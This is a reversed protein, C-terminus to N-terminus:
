FKKYSGINNKLLYKLEIYDDEYEGFLEIAEKLSKMDITPINERVLPTVEVLFQSLSKYQKENETKIVEMEEQEDINKLDKEIQKEKFNNENLWNVIYSKKGKEFLKLYFPSNTGTSKNLFDIYVKEVIEEQEKSSMKEFFDYDLLNQKEEVVVAEEIVEKEKEKQKIDKVKKKVIYEDAWNNILAEKFYKLISAKANLATYEATYKVYDFEYKKLAERIINPLTKLSDGKSGFINIIESVNCSVDDDLCINNLREEVSHIINFDEKDQYFLQQKNKNHETDFFIEFENKDTKGNKLYNFDSILNLNKLELLSDSIKKVTKYLMNGKLSLPIKKAIYTLPKKLYLSNKRWKTIQTYLSRVVPDKINLLIDADFVLYGKATINGYIDDAIRIRYIEKIRRDVFFDKEKDDAEKFTLIRSTILPTNIFDDVRKNLSGLYFLNFFSYNTKSLKIISNKIKSYVGRKSNKPINLSDAIESLSCYFIAKGNKKKMIKLLSIFVREDFEGPISEDNPPTIELYSQKDKSFYYKLIQNKKVKPNKSFIPFEIVNMEMRILSNSEEYDLVDLFEEVLETERIFSEVMEENAIKLKKM